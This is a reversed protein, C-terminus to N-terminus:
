DTAGAEQQAKLLMEVANVLSPIAEVMSDRCAEYHEFDMGFPDPIQPNSGDDMFQRMLFANAPPPDIQLSLMALHSDTMGIFALANDVLEQDLPKSEHETLSIGVKKLAAITNDNAPQGPFASVGASAIRLKDFPTGKGAIAHRFLAEAMPSRCTNATCLFVIGNKEKAM